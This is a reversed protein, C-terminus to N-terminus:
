RDTESIRDHNTAAFPRCALCYASVGFCTSRNRKFASRPKAQKCSACIADTNPNGGAARIRMRAHLLMHYAQDQCIVLGDDDAKGGSVHHVVANVPLSKGLAKMARLRHLRETVGPELQIERYENTVQKRTNHGVLFRRPQGKIAGRRIDTVTSINTRGGCGCECFAM